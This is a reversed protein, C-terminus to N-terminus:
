WKMKGISFTTNGIDRSIRIISGTLSVLHTPSLKVRSYGGLTELVLTGSNSVLSLTVGTSTCGSFLTAGDNWQYCFPATGWTSTISLSGSSIWSIQETSSSYVVREGQILSSSYGDPLVGTGTSRIARSYDDLAIWDETSASFRTRIADKVSESFAAFSLLAFSTLFLVILLTSGRVGLMM